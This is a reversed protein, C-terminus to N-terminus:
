WVLWLHVTLAAVFLVAVWRHVLRSLLPNAMLGIGDLALIGLVILALLGTVSDSEWGLGRKLYAYAHILVIGLALMGTMMHLPRIFRIATATSARVKKPLKLSERTILLWLLGHLVTLGAFIIAILGFTSGNPRWDPAFPTLIWIGFGIVLLLLYFSVSNGINEFKEIM